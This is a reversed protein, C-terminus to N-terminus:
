EWLTATELINADVGAAKLIETNVKSLGGKLDNLLVKIASIQLFCVEKSGCDLPRSCTTTYMECTGKSMQSTDM